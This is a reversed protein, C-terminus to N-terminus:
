STPSPPPRLAWLAGCVIPHQVQQHFAERPAAGATSLCVPPSLSACWTNNLHLVRPASEAVITHPLAAGQLTLSLTDHGYAVRSAWIRLVGAQLVQIYTCIHIYTYM